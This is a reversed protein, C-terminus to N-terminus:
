LSVVAKRCHPYLNVWTWKSSHSKPCFYYKLFPVIHALTLRSLACSKSNWHIVDKPRLQLDHGSLILAWNESALHRLFIRNYKPREWRQLAFKSTNKKESKVGTARFQWQKMFVIRYRSPWINSAPSGRYVEYVHTRLVRQSPNRFNKSLPSMNHM